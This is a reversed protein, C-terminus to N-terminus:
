HTQPFAQLTSADLVKLVKWKGEVGNGNGNVVGDNNNDSKSEGFLTIRNDGSCVALIAPASWELDVAEGGSSDDGFPQHHRPSWQVRWVADGAKWDLKNVTWKGKKASLGDENEGFHSMENNKAKENEHHRTALSVTYDASGIALLAPGNWAVDRIWDTHIGQVPM